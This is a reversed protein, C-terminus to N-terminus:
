KLHEKLFNVTATHYSPYQTIDNHGAGPVNLFRKPGKWADYLARARDPPITGDLNAAVVLAPATAKAADSLSDYRDRLLWSVPLFHYHEKAVALISDYPTILVAGLIERNAAVHVAMGSGLSRGMVFAARGTEAVAQDYVALADDKLAKEGPTGTSRGFGRYNVSVISVDPYNKAQKMFDAADEANGGFYVLAPAVGRGLRRPLYWGSLSQGDRTAVLLVELGPVDQMLTTELMADVPRPQYLISDQAFYLYAVAAIWLVALFGVVLKLVAM